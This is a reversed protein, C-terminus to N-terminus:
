WGRRMNKTSHLKFDKVGKIVIPKGKEPTFQVEIGERKARDMANIVEKASNAMLSYTNTKGNTFEVWLSYYNRM